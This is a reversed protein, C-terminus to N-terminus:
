NPYEGEWYREVRIWVFPRYSEYDEAMNIPVNNEAWCAAVCAQCGTCRDLDVVITWAHEQGVEVKAPAAPASLRGDGGSGAAERPALRLPIPRSTGTQNADAM